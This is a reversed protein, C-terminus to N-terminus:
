SRNKKEKGLKFGRLLSSDKRKTRRFGKNTM